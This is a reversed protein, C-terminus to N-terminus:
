YASVMDLYVAYASESLVSQAVRREEHAACSHLLQEAVRPADSCQAVRKEGSPAVSLSSVPPLQWTNASVTENALLLGDM